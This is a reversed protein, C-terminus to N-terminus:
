EKALKAKEGKLFLNAKGETVIAKIEIKRPVHERGNEWIFQNVKNSILVNEPEVRFHKYAFKKILGIAKNARRPRPYSYVQQLGVVFQRELKEAKKKQKAM